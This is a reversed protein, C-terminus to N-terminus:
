ILNCMMYGTSIFVSLMNRKMLHRFGIGLSLSNWIELLFDWFM